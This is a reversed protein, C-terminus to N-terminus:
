VDLILWGYDIRRRCGYLPADCPTLVVATRRRCSFGHYGLM